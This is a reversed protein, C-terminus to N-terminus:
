RENGGATYRDRDRRLVVFANFAQLKITNTDVGKNTSKWKNMQSIETYKAKLGRKYRIKICPM